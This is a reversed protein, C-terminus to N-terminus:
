KSFRSFIPIELVDSKTGTKVTGEFFLFPVAFM